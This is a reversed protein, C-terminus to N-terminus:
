WSLDIESIATTKSICLAGALPSITSSGVNNVRYKLLVTPAWVFQDAVAREPPGGM